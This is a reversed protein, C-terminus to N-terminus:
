TRLRKLVRLKCLIQITLFVMIALLTLSIVPNTNVAIWSIAVFPLLSLRVVSRLNEHKAIHDAIPPSYSYYLNVLAMGVWNTLLFRDRFDRLIQVHPEMVSGYAATAIFCGGGGGGSSTSSPNDVNVITTDTAELGVADAVTVKFTLTEGGLGVDPATFTPNVATPDSMTVQIADNVDQQWLYSVIMDNPDFSNSGDLTVLDFEHVSQDPGADAVPLIAQLGDYFWVNAMKEYGTEFPHLNDWMDGDPQAQYDIGAGCEMDVIEIRDGSGLRNIAMDYLLDNFTTTTSASGSECDYNLRNIILALIVTIKVGLTSEYRDIEDLVQFVESVIGAPVQPENIDNTGIHLLIIDAPNAVLWNYINDRIQDTRWGAHGEHNALDPDGFVASGNNLSGVYDVVYGAAVLLEWLAKRYSVMYDPDPEGSSSGTTISDGLPMIRIEANVPSALIIELFFVFLLASYLRLRTKM